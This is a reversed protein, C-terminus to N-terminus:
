CNSTSTPIVNSNPFIVGKNNAREPTERCHDPFVYLCFLLFTYFLLFIFLVLSTPIAYFLSFFSPLFKVKVRQCAGKMSNPNLDANIMTQLPNTFQFDVPDTTQEFVHIGSYRAGQRIPVEDNTIHDVYSIEVDNWQNDSFVLDGNDEFMLLFVHDTAIMFEYVKQCGIRQKNGNIFVRPSFKVTIPQENGLGIVLCLSITPFKNRFWFSFSEAIEQKRVVRSTHFKKVSTRPRFWEPIKKKPFVFM